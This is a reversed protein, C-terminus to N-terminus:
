LLSLSIIYENVLVEEPVKGSKGSTIFYLEHNLAILRNLMENKEENDLCKNFDSESNIMHDKIADECISLVETYNKLQDPITTYCVHEKCAIGLIPDTGRDSLINCIELFLAIIDRDDRLKCFEVIKEPFPINRNLIDKKLRKYIRQIIDDSQDDDDLSLDYCYDLFDCLIDKSFLCEDDYYGFWERNIDIDTNNM